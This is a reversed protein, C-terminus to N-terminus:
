RNVGPVECNVVPTGRPTKRSDVLILKEGIGEKALAMAIVLATGQPMDDLKPCIETALMSGLRRTIEAGLQADGKARIETAIQILQPLLPAFVERVHPEVNVPSNVTIAGRLLGESMGQRLQLSWLAEVKVEMAAIRTPSIIGDLTTKMSSM